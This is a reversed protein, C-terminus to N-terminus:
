KVDFDQQIRDHRHHSSIKILKFFEKLIQVLTTTFTTAEKSDRYKKM